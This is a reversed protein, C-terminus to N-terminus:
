DVQIAMSFTNLGLVLCQPEQHLKIKGVLKPM